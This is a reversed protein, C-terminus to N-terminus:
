WAGLAGHLTVWQRDGAGLEEHCKSVPIRSAQSLGCPGRIYRSQADTGEDAMFLIVEGRRGARPPAPDCPISTPAKALPFCQICISAYDSLSGDDRWSPQNYKEHCHPLFRGGTGACRNQLSQSDGGCSKPPRAMTAQRKRLQVLLHPRDRGKSM